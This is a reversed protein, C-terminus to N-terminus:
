IGYMGPNKLVADTTREAQERPIAAEILLAIMQERNRDRAADDWGDLFGCAVLRENLTM